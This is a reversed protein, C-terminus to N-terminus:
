FLSPNVGKQIYEFLAQKASLVKEDTPYQAFAVRMYLIELLNCFEPQRILDEINPIPQGSGVITPLPSIIIEEELESLYQTNKDNSNPAYMKINDYNFEQPEDSQEYLYILTYLQFKINVKEPVLESCFSFFKGLAIVINENDDVQWYEIKKNQHKKRLLQVHLLTSAIKNDFLQRPFKEPFRVLQEVDVPTKLHELMQRFTFGHEKSNLTDTLTYMDLEVTLKTDLETKFWDAVWHVIHFCSATVVREGRRQNYDDLDYDLNASGHLIVVHKAKQQCYQGLNDLLTQNMTITIESDIPLFLESEFIVSDKLTTSKAEAFKRRLNEQIIDRMLITVDNAFTGDKDLSLAIIDIDDAELFVEM